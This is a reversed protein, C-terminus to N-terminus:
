GMTFSRHKFHVCPPLRGANCIYPALTKDDYATGLTQLATWTVTLRSHTLGFRPRVLSRLVRTTNGIRTGHLGKAHSTSVGATRGQANCGDARLTDRQPRPPLSGVRRRRRGVRGPRRRCSNRGHSHGRRTWDFAAPRGREPSRRQRHRTVYVTARGARLGAPARYPGASPAAAARRFSLFFRRNGSAGPSIPGQAVGMGPLM